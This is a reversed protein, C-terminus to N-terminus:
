TRRLFAATAAGFKRAADPTKIIYWDGTDGYSFNLGDIVAHEPRDPWSRRSPRATTAGSPEAPLTWTSSPMPRCSPSIARRPHSAMAPLSITAMAVPSATM